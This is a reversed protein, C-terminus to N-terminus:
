HFTVQFGLGSDPKSQRIHAVNVRLHRPVEVGLKQSGLYQGGGLLFPVVEFSERLEGSLWPWIRAQVTKNTGLASWLPASIYPFLSTLGTCKQAGPPYTVM